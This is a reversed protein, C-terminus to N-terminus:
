VFIATFQGEHQAKNLISKNTVLLYREESEKRTPEFVSFYLLSEFLKKM